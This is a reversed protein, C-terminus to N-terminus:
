PNQDWTNALNQNPLPVRFPEPVMEIDKALFMEQNVKDGIFKPKQFDPHWPRNPHDLRELRLDSLPNKLEHLYDIRDQKKTLAYELFELSLEDSIRHSQHGLGIISKYIMPYGMARCRQYFKLSREYGTDLEGTTLLWFAQNAEQTPKDFSNPIHAHVALFYHPQRMALRLTFHAAASMGVLLFHENPLGYKKHMEEIGKGWAEMVAVQAQEVRYNEYKDLEDWSKGSLWMKQAGWCVMAMNHEDCMEAYRGLRGGPEIDGLFIRKLDEVSNALLCVAFVGEADELKDAGAPPRVFFTIQKHKHHRTKVVHEIIPTEFAKRKMKRKSNVLKKEAYDLRSQMLRGPHQKATMGKSDGFIVLAEWDKQKLVKTPVTFYLIEKEPSILRPWEYRRRANGRDVESPAYSTGLLKYDTDYFYVKADLQKPHIKKKASVTVALCPIFEDKVELHRHMEHPKYTYIGQKDKPEKELFRINDIRFFDDALVPEAFSVVLFLLLSHLTTKTNM